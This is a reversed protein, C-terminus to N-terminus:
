LHKAITASSAFGELGSGEALLSSFGLSPSAALLVALERTTREHQAHFAPSTAFHSGEQCVAVM